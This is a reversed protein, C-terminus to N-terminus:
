AHGIQLLSDVTRGHRHQFCFSVSPKGFRSLDFSLQFQKMTGFASRRVPVRLGSCSGLGWCRLGLGALEAFRLGGGDLRPWHPQKATGRLGFDLRFKFGSVPGQGHRCIDSGWAASPGDWSGARSAQFCTQSRTLEWWM